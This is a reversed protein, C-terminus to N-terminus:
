PSVAPQYNERSKRKMTTQSADVMNVIQKRYSLHNGFLRLEKISLSPADIEHEKNRIMSIHFFTKM